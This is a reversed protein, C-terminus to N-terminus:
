GFSLNTCGKSTQVNPPTETLECVNCELQTGKDEIDSANFACIYEFIEGDSKNCWCDGADIKRLQGCSSVNFSPTHGLHKRESSNRRQDFTVSLNSWCKAEKIATRNITCSIMNIGNIFKDPCTLKIGFLRM